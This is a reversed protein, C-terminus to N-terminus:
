KKKRTARKKGSVAGASYYANSKHATAGIYKGLDAEPYVLHFQDMEIQKVRSTSALAKDEASRMDHGASLFSELSLNYYNKVVAQVRQLAENRQVGYAAPDSAALLQQNLRIQDASGGTAAWPDVGTKTLKEKAKVKIQALTQQEFLAAPENVKQEEASQRSLDIAKAGTTAM